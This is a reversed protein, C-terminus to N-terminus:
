ARGAERALRAAEVAGGRWLEGHGPALTAAGTAAIADLSNLAQGTDKTAAAAVIGPGTRGTYPDFTVLADGSILVDREELLMACHGDTHGPTFVPRPKGPVPLPTDDRFTELDRIRQAFPAATRLAHLLLRRTPAHTAYRLPGRESRAMPLPSRVIAEDAEHVYVPTGAEKQARPAFGVHDIHGHTLVVAKLDGLDRDLAALGGLLQDWANPFGADIATLGDDDEVLYWNVIGDSFRHIGEAVRADPRQATVVFALHGYPSGTFAAPKRVRM